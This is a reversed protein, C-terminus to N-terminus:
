RYGSVVFVVVVLMCRTCLYTRAVRRWCTMTICIGTVMYSALVVHTNVWSGVSMITCMHMRLICVCECVVCVCACMCMGCLVCVCVCVCVCMCVCWVCVGYVCVVCVVCVCVCVCWVCWVVCVCCVHVLPLGLQASTPTLYTAVTTHSNACWKM